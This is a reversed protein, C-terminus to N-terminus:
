SLMFLFVLFIAYCYDKIIKQEIRLEVLGILYEIKLWYASMNTCIPDM